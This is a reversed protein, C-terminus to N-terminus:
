FMRKVLYVDFKSCESLREELPLSYLSALDVPSFSRLAWEVPVSFVYGANFFDVNLASLYWSRTFTKPSKM